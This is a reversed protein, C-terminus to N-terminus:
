NRNKIEGIYVRYNEIIKSEDLIKQLQYNKAKTHDQQLHDINYPFLPIYEVNNDDFNYAYGYKLRTIRNKPLKVVISFIGEKLICDNKFIECILSDMRINKSHPTILETEIMSAGGLVYVGLEPNLIYYDQESNNEIDMVLINEHKQIKIIDIPITHKEQCGYFLFIINLYILNRM